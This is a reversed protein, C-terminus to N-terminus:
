KKINKQNLRGGNPKFIECRHEHTLSSYIKKKKFSEKDSEPILKIDAEFFSNYLTRKKQEKSFINSSLYPKNRSLKKFAGTFNDPKM